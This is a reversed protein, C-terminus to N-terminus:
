SGFTIKTGSMNLLFKDPMAAEIAMIAQRGTCHTPVLYDPDIEMMAKITPDVIPEFFAGSLHFGGMIAYIKDIGTVEAAYKVTNIIGSHACGALVVLGMDKIRFVLSTDDDITDVVENEGVGKHFAPMGTEFSVQRPIQGLFLATNDLLPYPDKAKILELGAQAVQDETFPAFSIAGGDPTKLYRPSVFAEPHVVMPINGLRKAVESFGGLHDPHGHSLAVAEISGWDVGLVEANYVVGTESFGFDYLLNKTKPGDHITIVASYGHEAAVSKSFYGNDLPMARQVMDTNDQAVMDVFNDALTLIEIKDVERLLDSMSVQGKAIGGAAGGHTAAPISNAQAPRM